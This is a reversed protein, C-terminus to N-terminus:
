GCRSTCAPIWRATQLTGCVDGQAATQCLSVADGHPQIVPGVPQKVIGDAMHFRIRCPWAQLLDQVARLLGPDHGRRQLLEVTKQGRRVAQPDNQPGGANQLLVTLVPFKQQGHQAHGRLFPSVIEPQKAARGDDAGVAECPQQGGQLGSQVALRERRFADPKRGPLFAATGNHLGPVRLLPQVDGSIVPPALRHGLAICPFLQHGGIHFVPLGFWQPIQEARRGIDGCPTNRVVAQALWLIQTDAGGGGQGPGGDPAPQIGPLSEPHRIQVDLAQLQQVADRRHLPQGPFHRQIKGCLHFRQAAREVAFAEKVPHARAIYGLMQEGGDAGFFHRLRQAVGPGVQAGSEPLFGAKGQALIDLLFFCGCDFPQQLEGVLCQPLDGGHQGIGGLAVKLGNKM